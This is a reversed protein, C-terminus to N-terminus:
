KLYQGYKLLFLTKLAADHFCIRYVNGITWPVKRDAEGIREAIGFISLEATACFITTLSISSNLVEEGVSKSLIHYMEDFNLELVNDM